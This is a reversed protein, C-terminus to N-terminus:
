PHIKGACTKLCSDWARATISRWRAAVSSVIWRNPDAISPPSFGSLSMSKSTVTLAAGLSESRCASISSKSFLRMVATRHRFMAVAPALQQREFRLLAKASDPAAHAETRHTAGGRCGKRFTRAQREPDRDQSKASWPSAVCGQARPGDAAVNKSGTGFSCKELRKEVSNGLPICLRIPLHRASRREQEQECKTCRKM